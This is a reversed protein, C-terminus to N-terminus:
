FITICIFTTENIVVVKLGDFNCITQIGAPGGGGTINGACTSKYFDTNPDDSLSGAADFLECKGNLINYNVGQCRFDPFLNKFVQDSSSM